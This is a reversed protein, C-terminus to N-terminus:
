WLQWSARRFALEPFEEWTEMYRVKPVTDRLWEKVSATNDDDNPDNTLSNSGDLAYSNLPGGMGLEQIDHSTIADKFIALDSGFIDISTGSIYLVNLKAFNANDDDPKTGIPRVLAQLIKRFGYLEPYTRIYFRKLTPMSKLFFHLLDAYVNALILTHINLSPLEVPDLSADIPSDRSICDYITYTLIVKYSGPLISWLIFRLLGKYLDQLRLSQLHSLSVTFRSNWDPRPLRLPRDDITVSIFELSRLTPSSAAALLINEAMSIDDLQVEQIRLEVLRSFRMNRWDLKFGGLRLTLLSGVFEKIQADEYSSPSFLEEAYCHMPPHPSWPDSDHPQYQISLGTLHGPVSHKLLSAVIECLPRSNKGSLNVACFRPQHKAMFDLLTSDAHYITGALYLGAGSARELSLKAMNYSSQNYPVPILSWFAGHSLGLKRWDACVCILTYLRRYTSRIGQEVSQVKGPDFDNIFKFFINALIEDPLHYVSTALKNRARTLHSRSGSFQQMLRNGLSDIERELRFLIDGADFLREVACSDVLTCAGHYATLVNEFQTSVSEWIELANMLPLHTKAMKGQPKILK